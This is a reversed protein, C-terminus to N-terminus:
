AAALTIARVFLGLKRMDTGQGDKQPCHADPLTFRLALPGKDDPAIDLNLRAANASETFVTEGVFKGNLEVRLRQQSLTDSVFPIAEIELTLAKSQWGAQVPLLIDATPGDTWIGGSEPQSWGKQLYLLDEHGVAFELRRGLVNGARVDAERAKLASLMDDNRHWVGKLGRIDRLHDIFAGRRIHGALAMRVARPPIGVWAFPRLLAAFLRSRLKHGRSANSRGMRALIASRFDPRSLIKAIAEHERSEESTYSGAREGSPVIIVSLNPVRRHSLGTRWIRFLLEQSPEIRIEFSPRFGGARDFAERRVLWTSCAAFDRTPDFHEHDPTMGAVWADPASGDDPVSVRAAIAHVIDSGTAQLWNLCTELHDPLWLDDQNLFAIYRGRALEIGVNNPGSQDGFNIALNVFRLRPDGFAAVTKETDDTCHDGVIIVEFDTYTQALISRLALALLHARNYAAIIVSITPRIDRGDDDGGDPRATLM